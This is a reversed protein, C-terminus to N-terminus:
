FDCLFEQEYKQLSTHRRGSLEEGVRKRAGGPVIPSGVIIITQDDEIQTRRHSRSDARVYTASKQRKRTDRVARRRAGRM